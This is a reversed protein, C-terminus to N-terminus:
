AELENLARRLALALQEEWGPPERQSLGCRRLHEFCMPPEEAELAEGLQVWDYIGSSWDRLGCEPCAIEIQIGHLRLSRVRVTFGQQEFDALGVGFLQQVYSDDEQARESQRQAFAAEDQRRREKYAARAKERIDVPTKETKNGM